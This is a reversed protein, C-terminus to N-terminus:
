PVTSPPDVHGAQLRTAVTHRIYIYQHIPLYSCVSFFLKKGSRGTWVRRVAEFEECHESCFLPPGEHKPTAFKM